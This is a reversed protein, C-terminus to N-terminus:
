IKEKLIDRKYRVLAEVYYYDAYTLPVDVEGNGPFNGVSHKLIFNCNTGPEALYEPSSLTKLQTEAVSLCQRSFDGETYQSLEILASAIIAGASADRLENPINPADFDWYPIKDEPLRPHNIIFQAVKKAHELYKLEKTERYMMTYGYLAWGQGRAWSSKHAYGQCTNKKEPQGSITDYSVVHYCSYDPRFHYKMTVDAHSKAINVYKTSDSNKSAWDLLELNMMNDIIVPYEWVKKNWDWSRICGVTPRFRTSLSEAGQLLIKKYQEDGTLRYGNGFSCYLMFGVDHNDTTYQEDKVRWTYDEAYLKLSDDATMEYLYWLVGPFFGSTWWRSTSTVFKGDKGITRPLKDKENWLSEAMYKSQVVARELGKNVIQSMEENKTSTICSCIMCTAAFLAFFCFKISM